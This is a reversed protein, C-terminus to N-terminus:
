SSAEIYDALVQNMKDFMLEFGHVTSDHYEKKKQKYELNTLRRERAVLSQYNFLLQTGGTEREVFEVEIMDEADSLGPMGITMKIYQNEILVEFTGEIVNAKGNRKDVIRYKGNEAVDVDFTQNTRQSTMFWQKLLSATTWAQYVLSPSYKLLREIHIQVYEDEVNYKAVKGYM